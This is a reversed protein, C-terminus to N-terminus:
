CTFIYNLDEEKRLTLVECAKDTVILTHEYQASLSQDKTVVTWGDQLIKVDAKGANIIPEITFVMGPEFLYKDSFPDDYHLIQPEQHLQRGVGHGCFDKVISYGYEGVCKEIAKGVERASGGPKVAQIAKYLSHQACQSLRRAKINPKGIFFMKCTDSFVGNLSLSIDINLLDGDKLQKEDPIGHCAVRNISTCISKPYGKYGLPAPIANHSLIFEHCIQDLANTTVGPKLYKEIMELTASSIQASQRLLTIEDKDKFIAYGNAM